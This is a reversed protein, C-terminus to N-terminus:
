LVIGPRALLFVALALLSGLVAGWTVEFVSHIRAEVRSQAVLFAVFYALVWVLPRPFYVALGTAAAFALATHGSVAGGQFPTGRGSFAKALITGILVVGFMVLVVNAPVSAVATYVRQGGQQIGQYFVLYGVLVAGVSAIFVAGAAADKATKALPHHAVTLLDVVAEIATNFLELSLVIVIMVILAVIYIRELHLLMAVILVAAAILLHIRMNAQTRTAYMIGSFAYHFSGWFKSETIRTYEPQPHERSPPPLNETM